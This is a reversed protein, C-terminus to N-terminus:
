EESNGRHEVQSATAEAFAAAGHGVQGAMAKAVAAAGHKM